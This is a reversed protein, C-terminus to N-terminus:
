NKILGAQSEKGVSLVAAILRTGVGGLRWGREQDGASRGGGRWGGRGLRWNGRGLGWGGGEWGRRCFKKM